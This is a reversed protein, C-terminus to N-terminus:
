DDEDDEEDEDDDNNKKSDQLGVLEAREETLINETAVRAGLSPCYYKFEKSEADLPTYDYTKLCDKLTGFEKLKVNTDLSVIEVTDEAEGKYCEQLYTEGVKPSQKVWIGPKAGDKGALWSGDNNLFKGDEYNSVDEGFYWLDRTNKHQAVYDKTDEIIEKATYKGDENSDLWVKDRYVLTTVGMVKKTQGDITIEVKETGDVTQEEYTLKRGVPLSTYKNTIKTTFEDPKITPNYKSNCIAKAKAETNSYQPRRSSLSIATITVVGFAVVALPFLKSLNNKNRSSM